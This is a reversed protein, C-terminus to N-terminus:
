LGVPIQSPTGAGSVTNEVVSFGVQVLHPYIDVNYAVLAWSGNDPSDTVDWYPHVDDLILYQGPTNPWYQNGGTWIQFGMTGAPGPPISVEIRTVAGANFLMPTTLPTAIPTGAPITVDFWELRHTM